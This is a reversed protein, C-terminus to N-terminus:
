DDDAEKGDDSPDYDGLDHPTVVIDRVKESDPLRIPLSPSQRRARRRRDLV